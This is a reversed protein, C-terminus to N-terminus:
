LGEGSFLKKEGLGGCGSGLLARNIVEVKRVGLGGQAVPSCVTSWSLLIISLVM